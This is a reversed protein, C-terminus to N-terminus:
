KRLACGMIYALTEEEVKYYAYTKGSIIMGSTSPVEYFTLYIPRRDKEIIALYMVPFESPMREYESRQKWEVWQIGDVWAQFIEVSLEGTSKGEDNLVQISAGDGLETIATLLKEKRGAHMSVMMFYIAGIIVVAGVIVSVKRRM